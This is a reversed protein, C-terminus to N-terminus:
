RGRRKRWVMSAAGLGGLLALVGSTPEPTVALLTLEFDIDQRALSNFVVEISKVENFSFSGTTTFDNFHVFYDFPNPNDDVDGNYTATGLESTLTIAIDMMTSTPGTDLANFQILIGEDPGINSGVLDFLASSGQELGPAGSEDDIGDYQLTATSGPFASGFVFLGNGILGMFSMPGSEDSVEVMLDRQGGMIGPDDYQRVTPNSNIDMIVIVDAPSPYDFNDIVIWGATAPAASAGLISLLCALTLWRYPLQSRNSSM